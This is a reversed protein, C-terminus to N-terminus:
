EIEVNKGTLEIRASVANANKVGPQGGGTYITFWGNEIVRKDNEGIM